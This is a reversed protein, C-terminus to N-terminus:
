GDLLQLLESKIASYEIPSNMSTGLYHDFKPAAIGYISSIYILHGFGQRQFQQIVKQSLLIAGGLQKNLDEFLDDSKLNELSSGWGASQPYAAHVVADM